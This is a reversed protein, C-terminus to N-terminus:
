RGSIPPKGLGCASSPLRSSTNEPAHAQIIRNISAVEETCDWEVERQFNETFVGNWAAESALSAAIDGLWLLLVAGPVALLLPIARSLLLDKM